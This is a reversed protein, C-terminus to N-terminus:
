FEDVGLQGSAAVLCRCGHELHVRLGVLPTADAGAEEDVTRGVHDLEDLVDVIYQLRTARPDVQSRQQVM